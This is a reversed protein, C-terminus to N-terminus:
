LAMDSLLNIGLCFTRAESRDLLICPKGSYKCYHKMMLFAEHNVCDIPSIVLDAEELLKPLSSLPDNQDGHFTILHGGSNEVLQAYEPYLKRRGGVCLVSRGALPCDNIADAPKKNRADCNKIASTAKILPAWDIVHSQKLSLRTRTIKKGLQDSALQLSQTRKRILLYQSLRYTLKELSHLCYSLFIDTRAFDSPCYPSPTDSSAIDALALKKLFKM